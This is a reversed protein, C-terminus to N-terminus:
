RQDRDARVLKLVDLPRATRVVVRRALDSARALPEDILLEDVAERYPVLMAVPTRRESVIVTEGRKVYGLFASLRAKLESVM